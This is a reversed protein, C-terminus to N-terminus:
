RAKRKDLLFVKQQCGAFGVAQRFGTKALVRHMNDAYRTTYAAIRVDAPLYDILRRMMLTGYKKRRYERAIGFFGIIVCGTPEVDQTSTYIGAYGIADRGRRLILFEYLKRQGFLKGVPLLNLLLMRFLHASGRLSLFADSYAGNECGDMIERYIFSLDLLGAKRFEFAPARAKEGARGSVGTLPAAQAKTFRSSADM